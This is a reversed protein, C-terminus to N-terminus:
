AADRFRGRKPASPLIPPGAAVDGGGQEGEQRGTGTGSGASGSGLDAASAAPSGFGGTGSGASAEEESVEEIQPDLDALRIGRAGPGANWAELFEPDWQIQDANDRLYNPDESPFRIRRRRASRRPLRRPRGAAVPSGSGGTGNGARAEEESVEEAVRARGEAELAELFEPIQMGPSRRVPSPARSRRAPAAAVPSDSGGAGSVRAGPLRLGGDGGQGPGSGVVDGGHGALDERDAQRRRPEPTKLQFNWIWTPSGGDPADAWVGDPTLPPDPPPSDPRM